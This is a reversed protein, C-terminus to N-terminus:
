KAQLFPLILEELMDPKLILGVHSCNPLIALQSNPILQHTKALGVPDIYNDSDGGINLVPCKISAVKDQDMYTEQLWSARLAGILEEYTHSKPMLEKRAAVLGPLMKECDEATLKKLEEFSAPFYGSPDIMGGLAVVKKIEEPFYAALYYATIAGASFGMVFATDHKEKKLITMADEAFQQYSLSRSGLESKGHGRMGVAIVKFHKSLLPLYQAFEDIYGFTDGHLLLLPTGSGYVEYYLKANAIDIYKGAAPNNGYPINQGLSIASILILKVLIIIQKIKM